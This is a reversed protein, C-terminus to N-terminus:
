SAYKSRACNRAAFKTALDAGILAAEAATIDLGLASVAAAAAAAGYLDPPACFQSKAEATIASLAAAIGASLSTGGSSPAGPAVGWTLSEGTWVCGSWM